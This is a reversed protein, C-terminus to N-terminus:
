FMSNHLLSHNNIPCYKIFVAILYFIKEIRNGKPFTGLVALNEKIDIIVSKNLLETM